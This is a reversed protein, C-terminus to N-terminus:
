YIKGYNKILRRYYGALGLFGRFATMSKPQPWEQVVRIKEPDTAVGQETIIHGLYEVKAQAFVCKSQKAFLKHQRLLQLVKELHIYHKSESKNYILIDDLFVIVFKRLYPHLIQNMLTQFTAPANSLGFPMVAYGFHGQHTSFATKPIDLANMRIQHYGLRLDIKSFVRAGQLEDLPDEIVPIPFKNKVTYKNLKKYDIRL